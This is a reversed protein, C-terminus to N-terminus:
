LSLRAVAMFRFWASFVVANRQLVCEAFSDSGDSHFLERCFTRLHGMVMKIQGGTLADRFSHKIESFGRGPGRIACHMKVNM